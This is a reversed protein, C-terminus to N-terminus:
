NSITIPHFLWKGLVGNRMNNLVTKTDELDMQLAPCSDYSYKAGYYGVIKIIYNIIYMLAYFSFDVFVESIFYLRRLKLCNLLEPYQVQKTDM